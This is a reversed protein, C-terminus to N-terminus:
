RNQFRTSIMIGEIKLVNSTIKRQNSTRNDLYSSFGINAAMYILNVANHTKNNSYNLNNQTWQLYMQVSVALFM